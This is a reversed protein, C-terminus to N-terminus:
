CVEPELIEPMKTLTQRYSHHYRFQDTNGARITARWSAEEYVWPQRAFASASTCWSLRKAIAAAATVGTRWVLASAWVDGAMVSRNTNTAVPLLLSFTSKQLCLALM